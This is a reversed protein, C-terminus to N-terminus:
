AVKENEEDKSGTDAFCNLLFVILVASYYILYSIFEVTEFNTTQFIVRTLDPLPTSSYEVTFSM